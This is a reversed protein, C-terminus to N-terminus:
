ELSDIIRDVLAEMLRRQSDLHRLAMEMRMQQTKRAAEMRRQEARLFGEGIARLAKVVDSEGDDEADADADGDPLRRKKPPPSSPAPPLPPPSAPPPPSPSQSPSASPSPGDLLDIADLLPCPRRRKSRLRRRLKEVKHRCQRATKTPTAADAVAAWDASTLHARGVALRRATYARALALTEDPTWCPPPVRRAAAAANTPSSSAM